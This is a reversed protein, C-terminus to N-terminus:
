RLGHKGLWRLIAPRTARLSLHPAAQRARQLVRAADDGLYSAADLDVVAASALFPRLESALRTGDPYEGRLRLLPLEPAPPEALPPPPAADAEVAVPIEIRATIERRRYLVSEGLRVPELRAEEGGRLAESYGLCLIGGPRLAEGFRAVVQARRESDFYILVNRCLV